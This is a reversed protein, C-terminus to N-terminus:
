KGSRSGMPQWGSPRAGTKRYKTRAHSGKVEPHEELSMARQETGQGLPLNSQEHRRMELASFLLVLDCAPVLERSWERGILEVLKAPVELPPAREAVGRWIGVLLPVPSRVHRERLGAIPREVLLPAFETICEEFELSRVQEALSQFTAASPDITMHQLTLVGM